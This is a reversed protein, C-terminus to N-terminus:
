RRAELLLTPATEAEPQMRKANPDSILWADEPVAREMTLPELPVFRLIQEPGTPRPALDFLTPTLDEHADNNALLQRFLQTQGRVSGSRDMRKKGSLLTSAFRHPRWGNESFFFTPMISVFWEEGLREFRPAFAHHRVNNLRDPKKRDPYLQVVTASTMEKLSRYRYELPALPEPPRFHFARSEKDWALDRSFQQEMTRRLLEIM